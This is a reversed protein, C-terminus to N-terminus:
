SRRPSRYSHTPRFSKRRAPSAHRLLSIHEKVDEYRSSEPVPKLCHPEVEVAVSRRLLNISIILRSKNEFTLLIGELGALPGSAVRVRKGVEVFPCPECYAGSKVVARVAGLESHDVPIVNKGFGVIAKVGPITLIPLFEVPNFRCFVYGPFLPFEKAKIRGSSSRRYLPLFEECGKSRLNRAVIKEFRIRVYLAYWLSGETSANM